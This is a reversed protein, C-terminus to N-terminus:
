IWCESAAAPALAVDGLARAQCALRLQPRTRRHSQAIDRAGSAALFAIEAPTLKSLRAAGRVIRVLCSGCEGTRCGFRVRADCREAAAELSTGRPMEAAAGREDIFEVRMLSRERGGGRRQRAPASLWAVLDADAEPFAYQPLDAPAVWRVAHCRVPSPEGRMLRCRYFRLRVSRDDYVHTVGDLWSGVEAV